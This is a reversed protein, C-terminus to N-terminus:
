GSEGKEASWSVLCITLKSFTLSVLLSISLTLSQTNINCDDQYQNDLISLNHQVGHVLELRPDVQHHHVLGVGDRNGESVEGPEPVLGPDECLSDKGCDSSVLIM